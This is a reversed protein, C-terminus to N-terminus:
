GSFLALCKYHFSCTGLSVKNATFGTKAMGMFLNHKLKSFSNLLQLLPFDLSHSSTRGWIKTIAGWVKSDRALFHLKLFLFFKCKIGGM